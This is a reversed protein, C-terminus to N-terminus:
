KKFAKLMADVKVNGEYSTIFNGKKDYLALYPLSGIKYFPPLLFKTDRGLVYNPHRNLQYYKHFNAMEEEPQYTALVVQYSKLDKERKMMEDMQDQCHHCSPSFFMIITNQSKLDKSTFDKDDVTKLQLPPWGKVRKYAPEPEQQASAIVPLFMMLAIIWNKVQNM